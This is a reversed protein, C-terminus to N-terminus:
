PTYQELDTQDSVAPIPEIFFSGLPKNLEETNLNYDSISKISIEDLLVETDKDIENNESPAIDYYAVKEEVIEEEEIIEEPPLPPPSKLVPEEEETIEQDEIEPESIINLLPDTLIKNINEPKVLNAGFSKQHISAPIFDKLQQNSTLYISSADDDIDEITHVWGKGDTDELQGNRIIIIPDGTEGENSWRNKNEELIDEGINTSGFRISNGFRGEIITDGEYPLLPKIKIKEKFYNGLNIDTGEDEVQRVVIGNQTQEYDQKTADNLIGKTTPLANHHPHNWINLNPFYYNTSGNSTQYISKDYSSIILVIENILPNNKIFSFLPRATNTINTWNKELPTNEDLRTFFITGISDYGGYEIAKPHEINLIIDKVRVAIINSGRPPTNSGVPSSNSSLGSYPAM